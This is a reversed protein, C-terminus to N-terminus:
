CEHPVPPEAVWLALAVTVGVVLLVLGAARATEELLRRM